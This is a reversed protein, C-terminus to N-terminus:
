GEEEEGLAVLIRKRLGILAVHYEAVREDGIPLSDMEQEVLLVLLGLDQDDLM